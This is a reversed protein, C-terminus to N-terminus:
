SVESPLLVGLRGRTGCGGQAIGNNAAGALLKRSRPAESKEAIWELHTALITTRLNAERKHWFPAELLPEKLAGIWRTRETMVNWWVKCNYVEFSIEQRAARLIPVAAAIIPARLLNIM